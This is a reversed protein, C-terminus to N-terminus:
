FLSYTSYSEKIRKALFLNTLQYGDNGKCILGKELLATIATKVSSPANLEYKKMFGASTVQQPIGELAISVFLRWQYTSLLNRIIQLVNDQESQIISIESKVRSAKIKTTQNQWLKSCLSQIVATNGESWNFLLSLGKNSISIKSEDFLDVIFRKFLNEDIKPLSLLPLKEFLIVKETGSLIFQVNKKNLVDTWFEDNLLPSSVQNYFQFDDIAIITLKKQTGLFELANKFKSILEQESFEFLNSIEHNDKEFIIENLKEIKNKSKNRFSKLIESFLVILFQKTSSITLLSTYVLYYKNSNSLQSFLHKILATKGIGNPSIIYFSESNEIKSNCFEVEYNRNCFYKPNQSNNSSFPNTNM